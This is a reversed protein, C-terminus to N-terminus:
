KHSRISPFDPFNFSHILLYIVREPFIFLWLFFMKLGPKSAEMGWKKENFGSKKM